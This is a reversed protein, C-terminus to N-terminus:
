SKSEGPTSGPIRCGAGNSMKSRPPISGGDGCHSHPTRGSYWLGGLIIDSPTFIGRLAM